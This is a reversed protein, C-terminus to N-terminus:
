MEGEDPVRDTVRAASSFAITEPIVKKDAEANALRSRVVDMAEEFSHPRDNNVFGVQQTLHLNVGAGAESGITRRFHELAKSRQHWNKCAKGELLDGLTEIYKEALNRQAVMANRINRNAIVEVKPLRTECYTLSVYIQREDVDENEAIERVTAGHQFMLYRYQHLRERM